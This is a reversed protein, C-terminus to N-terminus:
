GLVPPDLLLRGIVAAGVATLVALYSLGTAAMVAPYGEEGLSSWVAATLVVTTISLLVFGLGVAADGSQWPFVGLLAMAALDAVAGIGGAADLRKLAVRPLRPDVLYWHGLMMTSTIGGLLLAGTVSALVGGELAAAVLYCAGGAGLLGVAVPVRRAAITGGLVLPGALIAWAGSGALVSPIGFLLTVGGALWTFGPGVIRWWVVVAAGAALGAAWM